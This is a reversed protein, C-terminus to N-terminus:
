DIDSPLTNFDCIELVLSYFELNWAGIELCIGIVLLWNGFKKKTM